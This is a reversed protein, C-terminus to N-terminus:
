CLQPASQVRDPYVQQGFVHLSYKEEAQPSPCFV